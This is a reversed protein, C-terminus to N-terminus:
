LRKRFNFFQILADEKTLPLKNENIYLNIEVLLSNVLQDYSLDQKYVESVRENILYFHIDSLTFQNFLRLM